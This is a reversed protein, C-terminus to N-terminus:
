VEISERLESLRDILTRLTIIRQHFAQFFQSNYQREVTDKCPEAPTPRQDILYSVKESLEGIVKELQSNVEGFESILKDGASAQKPSVVEGCCKKSNTYM